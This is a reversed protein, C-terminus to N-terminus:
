KMKHTNQGANVSNVWRLILWMHESPSSLSITSSASKMWKWMIAVKWICLDLYSYRAQQYKEWIFTARWSSIFSTEGTIWVIVVAEERHLWWVETQM